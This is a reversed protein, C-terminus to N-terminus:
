FVNIAGRINRNFLAMGSDTFLVSFNYQIFDLLLSFDILVFPNKKLKFKRIQNTNLFTPKFNIKNKKRQLEISLKQGFTLVDM